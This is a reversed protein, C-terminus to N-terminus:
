CEGYKHLKVANNMRYLGYNFCRMKPHDVGVVIYPIMEDTHCITIGLVNVTIWEDTWTGDNDLRIKILDGVKLTRATERKGQFEWWHNEAGHGFSKSTRNWRFDTYLPYNDRCEQITNEIETFTLNEWPHPPERDQTIAVKQGLTEWAM